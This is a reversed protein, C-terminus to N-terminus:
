AFRRWSLRRDANEVFRLVDFVADGTM